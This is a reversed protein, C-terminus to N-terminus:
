QLMLLTVNLLLLLQYLCVHSTGDVCILFAIHVAFFHVFYLIFSIYSILQLICISLKFFFSM